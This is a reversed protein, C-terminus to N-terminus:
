NGHRSLRLLAASLNPDSIGEATQKILAANDPSLRRVSHRKPQKPRNGVSVRVTVKGVNLGQQRLQNGLNRTIYRLRSAWASTDSYLLLRNEDRVVALCHLDLPHPLTARIQLLLAHQERQISLMHRINDDSRLYDGIIHPRKRM